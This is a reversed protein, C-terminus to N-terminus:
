NDAHHNPDFFSQTISIYSMDPSESTKRNESFPLTKPSKGQNQHNKRSKGSMQDRFITFIKLFM